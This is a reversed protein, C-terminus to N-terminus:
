SGNKQSKKANGRIILTLVIFLIVSTVIMLTLELPRASGYQKTLVRPSSVQGSPWGIEMATTTGNREVGIVQIGSDHGVVAWRGAPEPFTAFTVPTGQQVGIFSVVGNKSSIVVPWDDFTFFDQLKGDISFQDGVNWAHDQYTHVTIQQEEQLALRLKEEQTSCAGIHGHVKPTIPKGDLSYCQLGDQEVVLVPDNNLIILDQVRGEIDITTVASARGRPDTRLDGTARNEHLRARYLVPPTEGGVFWLTTDHVALAIPRKSLPIVVQYNSEDIRQCIEYLAGTSGPPRDHVFWVGVNNSTSVLQQAVLLSALVSAIM